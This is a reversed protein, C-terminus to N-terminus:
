LAVTFCCALLNRHHQSRPVTGSHCSQPCMAHIQASRDDCHCLVACHRVAAIPKASTGHNSHTNFLDSGLVQARAGMPLMCRVGGVNANVEESLYNTRGQVSFDFARMKADPIPVVSSISFLRCGFVCADLVEPTEPLDQDVPSNIVHSKWEDWRIESGEHSELLKSLAGVWFVLFGLRYQPSLAVIRQNPDQYFPALSEAPSPKHAGQELLFSPYLDFHPSLRFTTQMPAGEM